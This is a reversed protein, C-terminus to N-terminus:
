RRRGNRVRTDSSQVVTNNNGQVDAFQRTRVSTGREGRNGQRDNQQITVNSQTVSNNNGTVIATQVVEAANGADALTALSVGVATVTLAIGIAKSLNMM